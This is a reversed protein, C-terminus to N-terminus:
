CGKLSLPFSSLRRTWCYWQSFCNKPIFSLSNCVYNFKGYVFVESTKSIKSYVDHAECTINGADSHNVNRIKLTNTRINGEETPNESIRSDNLQASGKIKWIVTAAARASCNAILTEGKIVKYQSKPKVSFKVTAVYVNSEIINLNLNKIFSDIFKCVIFPLFKRLIVTNSLNASKRQKWLILLCYLSRHSYRKNLKIVDSVQTVWIFTQSINVADKLAM